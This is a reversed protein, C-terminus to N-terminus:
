LDLHAMMELHHQISLKKATALQPYHQATWYEEFKKCASSFGLVRKHQQYFTILKELAELFRTAEPIDKTDHDSLFHRIRIEKFAKATLPAPYTLHLAIALPRSGGRRYFEGCVTHDGYSDFGLSEYEFAPSPFPEDTKQAYAANNPQRNYGDQILTRDADDWNDWYDDDCGERYFFHRVIQEESPALLARTKLGDGASVHLVAFERDGLAAIQTKLQVLPQTGTVAVVPIAMQNKDWKELAKLIDAQKQEVGKAFPTTLLFYPVKHKSFSKIAHITGKIGNGSGNKADRVPILLPRVNDAAKLKAHVAVVALVESRRAHMVPVYM